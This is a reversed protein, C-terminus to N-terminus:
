IALRNLLVSIVRTVSEPFLTELDIEYLAAKFAVRRSLVEFNIEPHLLTGTKLMKCLLSVSISILCNDLSNMDFLDILFRKKM